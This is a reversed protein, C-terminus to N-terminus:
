STKRMSMLALIVIPIILPWFITYLAVKWQLANSSIEQRGAQSFMNNAFDAYGQWGKFRWVAAGFISAFLVFGLFYTGFLIETM